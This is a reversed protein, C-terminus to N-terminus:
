LARSHPLHAACLEVRSVPARLRALPRAPPRASRAAQEKPAAVRFMQKPEWEISRSLLRTSHLARACACVCARLQRESPFWQRTPPAFVQM